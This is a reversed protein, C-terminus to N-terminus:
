QIHAHNNIHDICYCWYGNCKSCYRFELDPYQTDTRGCVTCKHRYPKEGSETQYNKAWNANPHPRPAKYPKKVQWSKPLLVKVGSGFFLFYNGLPVLPALWLFSLFPESLGAVVNLATIGLYVWAMVKFRIPLFFFLLVQADPALTALALFLSLNLPGASVYYGFILGAADCLLVGLLYYLTFRLTGWSSELIKGFQYFCYLAVLGLLPISSSSDALYTLVYSFLRWVQGALIASRSFCLYSYVTRSPDIVTLLYVLVNGIGLYLMLNPIGKSRNKLCWRDFQRRLNNM